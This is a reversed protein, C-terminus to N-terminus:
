ASLRVPLLNKHWPHPTDNQRVVWMMYHLTTMVPLDHKGSRLIILTIESIQPLELIYKPYLNIGIAQHGIMDM